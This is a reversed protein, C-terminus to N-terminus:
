LYSHEKEFIHQMMEKYAQTLTVDRRKMMAEMAEFGKKLKYTQIVNPGVWSFSPIFTPPFSGSFINCSVGCLTGTNLQTGIATKTHDGMITGLFQQGTKITTRIRWDTISIQNYSNKLNSTTTGSGMNCWQGIVSSGVFGDHAKNSYSHFVANNVEGGVKCVPGITTNPYIKAGMKVVSHDCIAVPGRLYAGTMITANKGIYIPGDDAILVANPEITAGEEIFIQDSNKLTAASSITNNTSSPYGLRQLDAEIEQGAKLFLDWLNTIAPLKKAEIALLTNFDAQNTEIWEASITPEVLAAIITTDEKICTGAELQNIQKLLQETPLYRSNIWLVPQSPDFSNSIFVPTLESRVQRGWPAKDLAYHWKEALTLIGTRLDDVPRTLTLPYLNTFRSDEFFYLQM